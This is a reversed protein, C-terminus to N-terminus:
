GAFSVAFQGVFITKDPLDSKIERGCIPCIGNVFMAGGCSCVTGSPNYIGSQLWGYAKAAREEASM